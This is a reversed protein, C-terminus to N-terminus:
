VVGSTANHVQAGTASPKMYLLPTFFLRLMSAAFAANAALARVAMDSRVQVYDAPKESATLQFEKGDGNSPQPGALSRHAVAQPVALALETSKAAVSKSRRTTRRTAM